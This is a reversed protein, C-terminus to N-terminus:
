LKTIRWNVNLPTRLGRFLVRCQHLVPAKNQTEFLRGTGALPSWFRFTILFVTKLAKEKGPDM